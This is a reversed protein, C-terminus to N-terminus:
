WAAEHHSQGSRCQHISRTQAGNGCELSWPGYGQNMDDASPVFNGARAVSGEVSPTDLDEYTRAWRADQSSPWSYEKM